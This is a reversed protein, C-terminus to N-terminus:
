RSVVDLLVQELREAQVRRLRRRAFDRGRRGMQESEEPHAVLWRVAEALAEPDEPRVALGGGALQVLRSAEGAASVLVPRGAAM